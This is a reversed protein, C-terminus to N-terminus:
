FVDVGDWSMSLVQLSCPGYNCNSVRAKRLCSSALRLTISERGMPIHKLSMRLPRAVCSFCVSADCVAKRDSAISVLNLKLNEIAGFDGRNM